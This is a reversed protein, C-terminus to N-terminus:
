TVNQIYLANRFPSTIPSFTFAYLVFVGGGVREYREV